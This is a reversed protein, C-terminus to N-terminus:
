DEGRAIDRIRVKCGPGIGYRDCFGMPVEIATGDGDDYSYHRSGSPNLPMSYVKTIKDDDNIFMVDLPVKCNKMWFFGDGSLGKFLMGCVWPLSEREMLGRSRSEHTDAVELLSGGLQNGDEDLYAVVKQYKKSPRAFIKPLRGKAGRAAIRKIMSSRKQVDFAM